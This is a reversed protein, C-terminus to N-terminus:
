TPTPSWLRSSETRFMNSLFTKAASSPVSPSPTPVCRVCFPATPTPIPASSVTRITINVARALLELDHNDPAIGSPFKETSM